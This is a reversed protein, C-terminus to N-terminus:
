FYLFCQPYRKCFRAFAKKGTPTLVKKDVAELLSLRYGAGNAVEQVEKEKFADNVFWERTERGMVPPSTAWEFLYAAMKEQEQQGFLDGAM